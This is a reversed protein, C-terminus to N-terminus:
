KKTECFGKKGCNPCKALRKRNMHMMVSLEYPKAKFETKCYPCVYTKSMLIIYGFVSILLVPIAIYYWPVDITTTFWNVKCSCLTLTSSLLILSLLLKKM